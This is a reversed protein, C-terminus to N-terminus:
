GSAASAASGSVCADDPLLSLPCRDCGGIDVVAELAGTTDTRWLSDIMRAVDEAIPANVPHCAVAMAQECSLRAKFTYGFKHANKILITMSQATNFRLDGRAGQANGGAVSCVVFSFCFCYHPFGCKCRPRQALQKAFTTKGSEETGLLLIRYSRKQLRASFDGGFVARGVFCVVAFVILCVLLSAIRASM